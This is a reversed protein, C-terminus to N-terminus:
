DLGGLCRPAKTNVEVVIKKAKSLYAPTMSCSTSLNFFGNVDMPAVQV